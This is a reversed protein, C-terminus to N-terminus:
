RAASMPAWNSIRLRPEVPVSTVQVMGNTSAACHDHARHGGLKRHKLELGPNGFFQCDPRSIVLALANASQGAAPALRIILSRDGSQSINASLNGTSRRGM